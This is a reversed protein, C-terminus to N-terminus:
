LLARKLRQSARERFAPLPITEIDITFARPFPPEDNQLERYQPITIPTLESVVIQSHGQFLELRGVIRWLGPALRFDAQLIDDPIKLVITGSANRATALRFAKGQQPRVERVSTITVALWFDESQPLSRIEINGIM